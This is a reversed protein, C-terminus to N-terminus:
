LFFIIVKQGLKYSQFHVISSVINGQINANENVFIASDFIEKINVNNLQIIKVPSNIEVPEAFVLKSQITQFDTDPIVNNLDIDNIQSVYCGENLFVNEFIASEYIHQPDRSSKLMRSSLFWTFNFDDIFSTQLNNQITLNMFKVSPITYDKNTSVIM